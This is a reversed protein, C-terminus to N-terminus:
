RASNAAVEGVGRVLEWEEGGVNKLFFEEFDRDKEM